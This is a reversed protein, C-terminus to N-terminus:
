HRRKKSKKENKLEAIIGNVEDVSIKLEASIQKPTMKQKEICYRVVGRKEGRKEGRAEGEAIMRDLIAEMSKAGKKAPHSKAAKRFRDDGTLVSMLKLVADVHRITDPSPKYNQNMRKQVFYDAVYRFDSRFMKVQEPSLFAIEYLNKMEYDSIFPRIDDQIDIVESLHRGHKWHTMGFYLVITVVPYVRKVHKKLLQTRYSQGDYSIVRVPMFREQRVQNEIGILSLIVGKRSFLKSVDREQEHIEASDAKYQSRTGTPGLEKESVFRTGNFLLVNVIDAFVDNYDLLTKETIDVKGM